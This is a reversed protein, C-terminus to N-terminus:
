ISLYIKQLEKSITLFNYETEMKKISLTSIKKHLNPNNKLLVIKEVYEKSLREVIFGCKEDVINNYGDINCCIAPVGCSLSELLTNSMGESYSTYIQANFLSYYQYMDEIYGLIHVNKYDSFEKLFEQKKYDGDGCIIFNIKDINKFKRIIDSLLEIGKVQKFGGVFGVNFATRDISHKKQISSRHYESKKFIDMEVGNSIFHTNYGLQSYYFLNAKNNVVIMKSFRLSFNYISNLLSSFMNHFKYFHDKQNDVINNIVSCKCFISAINGYFDCRRLRTHLIDIDNIKLVKILKFLQFFNFFHGSELSFVKIDAAKLRQIEKNKIIPNSLIFLINFRERDLNLAMNVLQNFPGITDSSTSYYAINIKKTM